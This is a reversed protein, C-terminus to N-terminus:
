KLEFMEQCEVCRVCGPMASRRAAPIIEECDVCYESGEEEMYLKKQIEKLHIARLRDDVGQIQDISDM